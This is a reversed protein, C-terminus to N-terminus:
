SLVKECPLLKGYSYTNYAGLFISSNTTICKRAFIIKIINWSANKYTYPNGGAKERREEEEIEEGVM